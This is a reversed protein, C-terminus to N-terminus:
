CDFLANFGHILRSLRRFLIKKLRVGTGRTASGSLSSRRFFSITSICYDEFFVWRFLFTALYQARGSPDAVRQVTARTASGSLSSRQFFSITSICYDEFFVWRFLFTAVYQARGSPDAVRQVTARTASGSLSSGQFIFSTSHPSKRFVGM